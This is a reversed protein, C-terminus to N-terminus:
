LDIKVEDIPHINNANNTIIQENLQPLQNSVIQEKIEPLKVDNQVEHEKKVDTEKKGIKM